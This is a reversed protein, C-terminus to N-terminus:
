ASWPLAPCGRGPLESGALIVTNPRVFYSGLGAAAGALAFVLVRRMRGHTAVDGLGLLLEALVELVIQGLFELLLELIISM